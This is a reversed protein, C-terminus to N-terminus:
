CSASGCGCWRPAACRGADRPTAATRRAGPRRAARSPPSQRPDVCAGQQRDHAKKRGATLPRAEPHRAAPRPNDAQSTGSAAPKVMEIVPKPRSTRRSAPRCRTSRPHADARRRGADAQRAGQRRLAPHLGPTSPPVMGMDKRRQPSGSRTACGTSTWRCARSSRTSCRHGPAGHATATFSSRSCALHQLVAARRRRRRAAAVGPDRLPRPGRAADRHAARRDAPGARRGGRRDAPGPEPGPEDVHEHPRTGEPNARGASPASIM